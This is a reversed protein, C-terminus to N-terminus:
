GAAYGTFKVKLLWKMGEAHGGSPGLGAEDNM